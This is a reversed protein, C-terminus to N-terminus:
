KAGKTLPLEKPSKKKLPGRRRERKVLKVEKSSGDGKKLPAVPIDEYHHGDKGLVRRVRTTASPGAGEPVIVIPEEVPPAVFTSDSADIERDIDVGKRITGDEVEKDYRASGVTEGYYALLSRRRKDWWEAEKM